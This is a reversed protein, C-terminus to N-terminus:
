IFLFSVFENPTNDNRSYQARKSQDPAHLRITKDNIMKISEEKGKSAPRIRLFVSMGSETAPQDAVAEFSKALQRNCKAVGGDVIGPFEASRIIGPSSSGTFSVDLSM